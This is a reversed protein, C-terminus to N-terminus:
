IIILILYLYLFFISMAVIYIIKFVFFQDKFVRKKNISVIHSLIIFSVISNLYINCLCFIYYYTLNFFFLKRM